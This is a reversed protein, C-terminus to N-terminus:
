MKILSGGKQGGEPLEWQTVGSKRNYYYNRGEEESYSKEWEVPLVTEVRTHEAASETVRRMRSGVGAKSFTGSNGAKKNMGPMKKRNTKVPSEQKPSQQKKRTPDRTQNASRTNALILKDLKAEIQSIRSLKKEMVKLRQNLQQMAAESVAGGGGGSDGNNSKDSSVRAHLLAAHSKRRTRASKSSLGQINREIETLLFYLFM